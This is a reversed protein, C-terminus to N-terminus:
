IVGSHILRRLLLASGVTAIGFNAVLLYLIREQSAGPRVYSGSRGELLYTALTWGVWLAVAAAVAPLPRPPRPAATVAPGARGALAGAALSSTVPRVGRDHYAARLQVPARNRGHYLRPRRPNQDPGGRFGRGAHPLAPRSRSAAASRYTSVAARKGASSMVATRSSTATMM